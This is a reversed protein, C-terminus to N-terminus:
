VSKGMTPREDTARDGNGDLARGIRENQANAASSAGSIAPKRGCSTQGPSGDRESRGLFHARADERKECIPKTPVVPTPCHRSSCCRSKLATSRADISCRSETGNVIASGCGGAGYSAFHPKPKVNDRNPAHYCAIGHCGLGTRQPASADQLALVRLRARM